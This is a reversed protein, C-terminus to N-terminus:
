RVVTTIKHDKTSSQMSLQSLRRWNNFLHCSNGLNFMTFINTLM